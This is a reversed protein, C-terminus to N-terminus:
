PRSKEEIIYLLESELDARRRRLKEGEPDTEDPKGHLQEAVEGYQRALDHFTPNTELLGKIREKYEPFREILNLHLAM